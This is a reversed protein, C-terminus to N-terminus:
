VIVFSSKVMLFVLIVKFTDIKCISGKRARSRARARAPLVNVIVVFYGSNLKGGFEVGVWGGVIVM